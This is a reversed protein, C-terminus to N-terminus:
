HCNMWHNMEFGVSIKLVKVGPSIWATWTFAAPNCTVKRLFKELGTLAVSKTLLEFSKALGTTQVQFFSKQNPTHIKQSHHWLHLVKLGGQNVKGPGLDNSPLIESFKKNSVLSCDLDKSVKSSKSVQQPKM